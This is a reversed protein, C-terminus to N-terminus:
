GRKRQRVGSKVGRGRPRVALLVEDRILRGLEQVETTLEAIPDPREGFRIKRFDGYPTQTVAAIARLHYPSPISAGAEWRNLMARASDVEIGLVPGLERAM